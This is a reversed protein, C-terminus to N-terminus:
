PIAVAVRRIDVGLIRVGPASWNTAPTTVQRAQAATDFLVFGFGEGDVPDIWYGGVFGDASKIRPLITRTFEAAAAPAEAPDITLRILAAYLPGETDSPGV